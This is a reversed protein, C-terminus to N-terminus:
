KSGGPLNYKQEWDEAKAAAPGYYTLSVGVVSFVGDAYRVKATTINGGVKIAGETVKTKTGPKYFTQGKCIVVADTDYLYRKSSEGPPLACFVTMSGPNINGAIGVYRDTDNYVVRKRAFYKADAKKKKLIDKLGHESVNRTGKYLEGIESKYESLDYGEAGLSDVFEEASNSNRLRKILDNGVRGREPTLGPRQYGFTKCVAKAYDASTEFNLGNESCYKRLRREAEIAELAAEIERMGIKKENKMAKIERTENKYM